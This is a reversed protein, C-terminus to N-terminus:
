DVFRLRDQDYCLLGEAVLAEAAKQLRHYDAPESLGTHQAIESLPASRQSELARLLAGRAQRLSGEFRSQRTYAASRRTPNTEHKKLFVGYDMLAYYWDRVTCGGALAQHMAAQALPLLERDSVKAAQPFFHFIYASRINTELVIGPKNYAFALVARATYPGIGPLALLATENDPVTGALDNSIIRASDRLRLARSNYGLGKWAAYVDALSADALAQVDPFQVFWDLYKPLVRVTQTQQLMFESVLIRWPDRTERWPFSRGESRYLGLVASVFEDVPPM